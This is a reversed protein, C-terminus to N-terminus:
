QGHKVFIARCPPSLRRKNARMCSFIARRDLGTRPICLRFADATCTAIEDATPAPYACAAAIGCLSAGIIIALAWATDRKVM